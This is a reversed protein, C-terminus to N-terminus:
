SSSSATRRSPSRAAPPSTAPRSAPTTIARRRAQAPRRPEPRAPLRHATVRHVSHVYEVPRGRHRHHPARVPAPSLEARRATRRRATVVTPEVSQVAESVRVGRRDRFHEYLDGQELEAETLGPVLAAPSAPRHGDPRRGGAAAPGRVPNRRGTV